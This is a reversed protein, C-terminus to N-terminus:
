PDDDGMCLPCGWGDQEHQALGGGEPADWTFWGEGARYHLQKGCHNCSSIGSARDQASAECRGSIDCCPESMGLVM